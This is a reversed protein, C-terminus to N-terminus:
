FGPVSIEVKYLGIPLSSFLFAGASDTTTNSQVVTGENTAVVKANPVAGGTPDTVTGQLTATSQAHAPWVLGALLIFLLLVRVESRTSLAIGHSREMIQGRYKTATLVACFVRPKKDPGCLRAQARLFPPQVQVPPPVLLGRGRQTIPLRLALGGIRLDCRLALLNPSNACAYNGPSIHRFARDTFNRFHTHFFSNRRGRCLM